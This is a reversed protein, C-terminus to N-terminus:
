NSLKAIHVEYLLCTSPYQNEQEAGRKKLVKIKSKIVLPRFVIICSHMFFYLNGGSDGIAIAAANSNELNEIHHNQM